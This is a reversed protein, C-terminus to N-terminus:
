KDNGYVKKLRVELDQYISASSSQAISIDSESSESEAELSKLAEFIKTDPLKSPRKQKISDVTTVSLKSEQRRLRAVHDKPEIFESGLYENM